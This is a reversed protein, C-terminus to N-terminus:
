ERASRRNALWGRVWAKASSSAFVAAGLSFISIVSLLVFTLLRSYPGCFMARASIGVGSAALIPPLLDCTYWRWFEGRLIRRHMVATTVLLGVLHLIVLSAAGGVAGYHRTLLFIIPFIVAVSGLSIYVGLNVWGYALQMAWPIHALAHICTGIVLLPIVVHTSTVIASDGTWVWIVERAFFTLVVSASGVVVALFQSSAHYSNALEGDKQHAILQTFRPLVATYVPNVLRYLSIAVVGALSYYGFDKLSLLKSLVIKDAQGLLVGLISIISMGSAFRWCSQLASLRFAPTKSHKPIRSWLLLAIFITTGISILAQWAFFAEITPSVLWLVFVAGASRIISQGCNLIGILVHQQMGMLGGAYFSFPWQLVLVLTIIYLAQQLTSADLVEAKLWQTALYPVFAFITVGMVLGILWYIIEFTRLFDRIQPATASNASGYAMERNLTTSLGMDFLGTIAQLTVFFGVLGYAEIGIFKIYVPVFVLGVVSTCISSLYNAIVNKKVRNM